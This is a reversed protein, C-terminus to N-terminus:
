GPLRERRASLSRVGPGVIEIIDQLHAIEVTQLATGTASDRRRRSPPVLARAFGLKAAEKLRLHAQSVSRVEGSLGIEGFVVMDEPVPRGSLSSVLAAAVALDAAPESIRLGGAVNLYVENGGFALGCRAELVALIM